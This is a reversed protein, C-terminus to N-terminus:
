LTAALGVTLLIHIQFTLSLAWFIALRRVKAPLNDERMLSSIAKIYLPNGYTMKLESDTTNRPKGNKWQHCLLKKADEENLGNLDIVQEEPKEVLEVTDIKQARTAVLQRIESSDQLALKKLLMLVQFFSKAEGHLKNFVDDANDYYIFVHQNKGM